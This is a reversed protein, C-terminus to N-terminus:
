VTVNLSNGKHNNVFREIEEDRKKHRWGATMEDTERNIQM